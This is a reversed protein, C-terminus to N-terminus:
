ASRPATGASGSLGEMLMRNVELLPAVSERGIIVASTHRDVWLALSIVGARLEPPLGNDAAGCAASFTSWMERNRHLAPMLQGGRRGSEWAQEIERSIEALLRAEMSRPHEAARHARQYAALSM